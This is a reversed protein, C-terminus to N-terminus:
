KKQMDNNYQMDDNQMHSKGKFHSYVCMYDGGKLGITMGIAEKSGTLKKM